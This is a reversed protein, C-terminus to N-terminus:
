IEVEDGVVATGAGTMTGDVGVRLGTPAENRRPSGAMGNIGAINEAFPLGSNEGSTSSSSSPFVKFSALTACTSEGM